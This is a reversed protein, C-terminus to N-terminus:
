ETKDPQPASEYWEIFLSCCDIDLIHIWNERAARTCQVDHVAAM